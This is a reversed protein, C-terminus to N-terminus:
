AGSAPIGYVRAATAGFVSAVAEAGYPEVLVMAADHVQGYDRAALLCVPWDSGFMVRDPGFLSMVHDAYPKLDSVSWEAWNAETVLGSLKCDVNPCQSLDEILAAWPDMAGLGIRPKACHDLVFAVDPNASVCAVTAPLEPEKPLLDYVLGAQGVAAIGRQVESRMLWEPDPEDHVQHRIGKLYAGGVGSKLAALVDAVDEATLDVWGVVGAVYDTESATVLFDRTEDVSPVTQVLVTRDIGAEGILPRMDEPAFPRRIPDLEPGAMWYYDRQGPTWFHHHADIRM